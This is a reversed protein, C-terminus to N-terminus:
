DKVAMVQLWETPKRDYAGGLDQAIEVSKWELAAYANGLWERSPYNFFRGLADFGEAEGAKFSAYFVGSPRLARHIRSLIGALNARPVHLLCANAWIGDFASVSEIDEFRLVDVAVGLRRSAEEAMEPVGDTPTVSFGRAIMAASDRGNGCGLELIAAEPSLKELFRDLQKPSAKSLEAAYIAANEAYFQATENRGDSM